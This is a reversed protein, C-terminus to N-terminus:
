KALKRHVLLIKNVTEPDSFTVIPQVISNFLSEVEKELEAANTFEDLFASVENMFYAPRGTPGYYYEPFVSNEGLVNAFFYRCFPISGVEHPSGVVIGEIDYSSPLVNTKSNKVVFSELESRRAGLFESRIELKKM